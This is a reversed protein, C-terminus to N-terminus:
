QIANLREEVNEIVSSTPYTSQILEYLRIAQGRNGLNEFAIGQQYYSLAQWHSYGSFLTDMRGLTEIGRENLGRQVASQGLLFLAEAGLEDRARTAVLELMEDSESFNGNLLAIRGLGLYAPLTSTTVSGDIISARLRSEAEETRGLQILALSQGYRARTVAEESSALGAEMNEFLQLADELRGAELYIHGLSEASDGFRASDAFRSVLIDFYQAALDTNGEAQFIEALFYHADALLRPDTASEVFEMLDAKADDTRGSQYKAEAQRFILQEAAPTGALAAALSDVITDARDDQGAAMLAYQIGAAADSVFPSTPYRLLVRQYGDIAADIDGANFYADGIGYQAKAALQDTPYTDILSQYEIISQEYEQNLFYLYGLSYSAEERWESQPYSQLLERFTSIAEFPDGANSYAQGIQYLAYDDGEVAMRGYARVAEPYRKLAFYSDALRLRADARYPVTGTEDRFADLFQEFQPIANSYDGQRFYSWGLAYHAADRHQGGPYERMYRQFLGTARAYQGMQFYSEASWFLSESAKPGSPSDTFLRIFESASEEYARNRYNLWAKQFIVEAVLDSSATGHAIAADFAEHAGDFDGLAIATNGLHTLADGILSSDPYREILSEFTQNADKWKRLRYQIIGLEFWGHDSLDHLPWRGVFYTLAQIAAQDDEARALSVGRYYASMSSLTPHDAAVVKAFEDAAWQYAGEHSYNWALGYVSRVYYPNDFQNDTFYRYNIIADDSRRLQNLSEALLFTARDKSDGSLNPMQREFENAAREFDDLEYYVEGLALGIRNAFETGPYRQSLREFSAAADAYRGLEIENYAIAFAARPATETEPFDTIVQEFYRLAEITSKQQFASEGMWYLALASQEASPSRELVQSLTRIARDFDQKDFFYKGLSLRTGFAFPHLPFRQDFLSLLAIAGDQRGLALYSEAEYYMAEPIRAHLPNEIQFTHFGNAANAFVNESYLRLADEFQQEPERNAEQAQASLAPLAVLMCLLLTKPFSLLFHVPAPGRMNM